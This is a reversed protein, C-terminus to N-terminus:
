GVGIMGVVVRGLVGGVVSEPMRELTRASQGLMTSEAPRRPAERIAARRARGLMGLSRPDETFTM